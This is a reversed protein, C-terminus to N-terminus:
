IPRANYPYPNRQIMGGTYKKLKKFVKAAYKENKEKDESGYWDGIVEALQLDDLRDPDYGKYYAKLKFLRDGLDWYTEKEEPTLLDGTGGYDYRPDYGEMDQENGHKAFKKSQRKLKEVLKKEEDSLKSQGKSILHDDKLDDLTSGTIQLPGYATSGGPTNSLNTRIWPNEEVCTEQRAIGRVLVDRVVNPPRLEEVKVPIPDTM